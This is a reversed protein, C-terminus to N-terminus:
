KLFHKCAIQKTPGTRKLYHLKSLDDVKTPQIDVEESTRGNQRNLYTITITDTWKTSKHIRIKTPDMWEVPQSKQGKM